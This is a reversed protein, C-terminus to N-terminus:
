AHHDNHGQSVLDNVKAGSADLFVFGVMGLFSSLHPVLAQVLFLHTNERDGHALDREDEKVPRVAEASQVRDNVEAVAHRERAEKM